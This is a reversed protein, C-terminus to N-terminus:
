AIHPLYSVTPVQIHATLLRLGSSRLSMRPGTGCIAASIRAVQQNGDTAKPWPETRLQDAASPERDLRANVLPWACVIASCNGTSRDQRSITLLYSEPHM